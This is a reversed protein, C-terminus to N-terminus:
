RGLESESRDFGLESRSRSFGLESDSRSSGRRAAIDSARGTAISRRRGFELRQLELRRAELTEAEQQKLARLREEEDLREENEQEAPEAAGPAVTRRRAAVDPAAVRNDSTSAGSGLDCIVIRPDSCDRASAAYIGIDLALFFPATILAMKVSM